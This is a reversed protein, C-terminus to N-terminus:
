HVLINVRYYWQYSVKSFKHVEVGAVLAVEEVVREEAEDCWQDFMHIYTHIYIHIYTNICVYIHICTHM